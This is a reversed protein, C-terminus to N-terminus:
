LPSVEEEIHNLHQLAVSRILSHQRYLIQTQYREREILYRCELDLFAQRAIEAPYDDMLRYWGAPEVGRRYVAAMVLLRYALPSATQLRAFTHEIRDRVIDQLQPRYDALGWRDGSGNVEAAAKQQEVRIFEDGFEAWYPAVDGEYPAAAIEGTLVRLALPHGEYLRIIRRLLNEAEPSSTMVGWAAFLHLSESETLGSLRHRQSRAAYRGQWPLPPQEQATLIVRSPMEEARIIGDLLQTFTPDCFQLRGERDTTLLEEVMDLVLVCPQSKLRAIMATMVQQPSSQLEPPHIAHTGLVTQTLDEFNPRDRDCIVVKQVEFQAQLCPDALLRAALATKGIGTLGVLMLVRCEGRLQQILCEVLNSRGVWRIAADLASPTTLNSSVHPLTLGRTVDAQFSRKEVTVRLRASLEKCLEAGQARIYSLEYVKERQAAIADIIAEYTWGQWAGQFIEQKLPPMEPYLDLIQALAEEFNM